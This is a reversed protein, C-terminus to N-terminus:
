SSRRAKLMADAYEYADLAAAKASLQACGGDDGTTFALLGTLAHAAFYDRVTLADFAQSKGAQLAPDETVTAPDIATPTDTTM